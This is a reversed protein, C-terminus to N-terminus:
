ESGSIKREESLEEGLPSEPNVQVRHTVRKRAEELRKSREERGKDFVGALPGTEGGSGRRDQKALDTSVAGRSIGTITGGLELARKILQDQRLEAEEESTPIRFGEEKKNKGM